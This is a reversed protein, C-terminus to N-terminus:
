KVVVPYSVRAEEGSVDRVIFTYVQNGKVNGVKIFRDFKYKKKDADSIQVGIIDGNQGGNTSSLNVKFKELDRYYTINAYSIVSFRISDNVNVTDTKSTPLLLQIDILNQERNNLDKKCSSVTILAIFSIFLLLNKSLM